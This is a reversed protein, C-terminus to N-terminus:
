PAAANGKIRWLNEVLDAQLQDHVNSDHIKAHMALFDAFDAPLEHDVEALPGECEYPGVHTRAHNKHDDEIIMNHMIVCAQMVEWMQDHSWSLAPYRVIAFQAQLVGFARKVDKRCAKMRLYDDQTDAPAGYALMRMAATCKQISSFGVVGVADLKLKFYPDFERVGHLINMFLGKSMKKRGPRSGGRRPRKRKQAEADLMDQLSAIILLHERLDDDFAQEDELLLALMEDDSDMNKAMSQLEGSHLEGLWTGDDGEGPLERHQITRKKEDRSSSAPSLVLEASGAEVGVLLVVVVAGHVSGAGRRAVAAVPVLGAEGRQRAAPRAPVPGAAGRGGGRAGAARPRAEGRWAVPAPVPGAAGRRRRRAPPLRLEGRARAPPVPVLPPPGVGSCSRARRASCRRGGHPVERATPAPRGAGCSGRWSAPRGQDDRAAIHERALPEDRREGHQVTSPTSRAPATSRSASTPSSAGSSSSLLGFLRALIAVAHDGQRLRVVSLTGAGLDLSRDPDVLHLQAGPVSVLTEEVTPPDDEAADAHQEPARSTVSVPEDATGAPVATDSPGTEECATASAAAAALFCRCHVDFCGCSSTSPSTSSTPAPPSSSPSAPPARLIDSRHGQYWNRTEEDMLEMDGGGM